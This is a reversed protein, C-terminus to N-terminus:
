ILGLFHLGLSSSLARGTGDVEQPSSQPVQSPVIHVHIGCPPPSVSFLGESSDKQGQPKGTEVAGKGPAPVRPVIERVTSRFGQKPETPRKSHATDPCLTLNLESDCSM